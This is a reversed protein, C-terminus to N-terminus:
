FKDYIETIKHINNRGNFLSEAKEKNDRGMKQAVEPHASLYAIKEAFKEADFEPLLYGNVGDRIYKDYNGVTVVPKGSAMAEIVDRGWPNEIARSIHVLIDSESIVTEPSNQYGMFCFYNELGKDKISQRIFAAYRNGPDSKGCVVFIANDCGIKKLARAVDILRDTGRPRSISSLVLAKFKDKYGALADTKGAATGAEAFNYIVSQPLKATGPCIERWLGQENETIFVLHDATKGAICVQIKAFINRPLMTRVHYVVRCRFFVKFFIGAFFLSEHNLHVIKIDYNNILKKVFILFRPLHVLTLLFVLIGKPNGHRMATIRPIPSFLYAPVDMEAYREKNPGEKGYVLVPGYKDKDLYKILYYLSRSSGGWGGEIDVYLIPIGSKM